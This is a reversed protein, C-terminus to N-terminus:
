NRLFEIIVSHAKNTIELVEMADKLTPFGGPILGVEGPYRADIYIDDILGLEESTIFNKNKLEVPLQEFLTTLSHIRPIRTKNEELVAKFLKELTQQCHFLCVNAVYEDKVLRKAAALDREAFEIWNKAAERL